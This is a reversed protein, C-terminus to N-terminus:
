WYIRIAVGSGNLPPVSCNLRGADSIKVSEVYAAALAFAPDLLLPTPSHIVTLIEIQHRGAM